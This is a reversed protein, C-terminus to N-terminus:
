AFMHEHISPGHGVVVKGLAGDQAREEIDMWTQKVDALEVVPERLNRAHPLRQAHEHVVPERRPQAIADPDGAGNHSEVRETGRLPARAAKATRPSPVAARM